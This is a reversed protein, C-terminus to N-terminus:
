YMPILNLVFKLITVSIKFTQIVIILRFVSIITNAPLIYLFVRVYPILVQTVTEINSIIETSIPSGLISRILTLFIDFIANFIM